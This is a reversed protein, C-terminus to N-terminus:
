RRNLVVGLVAANVNRLERTATAAESVATRGERVLLVAARAAAAIMRASSGDGWAPTDLLIVDFDHECRRLLHSLTPRALLDEPNPPLPGSPLVALGPVGPVSHVADLKARGALISSLGARNGVRFLAHQRPHNLDADVLLTRAGLQAFVIALNAAIFSRGAGRDPGIIAVSRMAPAANLARLTIQGRLERLREVLENGPHFAAIVEADLREDGDELCPMAFQQSLAFQIDGPTAVGLQVATEGFPASSQLQRAYIRRADDPSIRRAAVLIAGITGEPPLSEDNAAVGPRRPPASARPPTRPPAAQPATMAPEAAQAPAAQAPAAPRAAAPPAAASPAAASPAVTAQQAPRDDVGDTLFMEDDFEGNDFVWADSDGGAPPLAIDLPMFGSADRRVASREARPLSLFPIKM